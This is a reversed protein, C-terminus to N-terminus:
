IDDRFFLSFRVARSYNAIGKGEVGAFQAGVSELGLDQQVGAIDEDRLEEGGDDAAGCSGGDQTM